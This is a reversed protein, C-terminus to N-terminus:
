QFKTYIELHRNLDNQWATMFAEQKEYLFQKAISEKRKKFDEKDAPKKDTTSLIYCAKGGATEIAYGNEGTDLKFAQKVVNPCDADLVEVYKSEKGFLKSPRKVYDTEYVSINKGPFEGKITNVIDEFSIAESTYREAIDKARQLAKEIILDERAREKIESFKAPAPYNKEIIQFIVKGEVYDLPMTPEYLRREFATNVIQDSGPLIEMLGNKSIFGGYIKKGQPIKYTLKYKQALEKFTPRDEDDMTEYIEKDVQDILESAKERAKKDILIERIEERVESFSQYMGDSKNDKSEEPLAKNTETEGEEKVTEKEPTEIKYKLEKNDKYYERMEDETITVQKAVEDYRALLCEIKILEPLKYGPTSSNEEFAKNKHKEYFERIERDSVEISDTFNRAYLPLVKFKVQENEFSYRNWLEDNTTKVSKRIISELKEVLLAERVTREIQNPNLKFANCLFQLLMVNNMEPNQGFIQMAIRGLGDQVEQETIVTGMRKAEEVLVLQRWILSIISGQAQSFFLKQWRRAMDAFEEQTIKEGFVRGVPKKPILEMASYSIGWVSIAFIMIIYIFKQNKRLWSSPVM